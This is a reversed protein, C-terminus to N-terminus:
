FGFRVGFRFTRQSGSTGTIQGFTTGSAISFGTNPNGWRVSNTVNYSDVRFEGYKTGKITFRKFLSSDIEWYAPGSPGGHRGMNGQTASAPQSYVSPDFYLLGPGLGFQSPYVAPITSGPAPGLVSNSGNLNAYATTGPTNLASGSATISLPLGSQWIYIGSLEWGGVIKGLTSQNMWRRGPGWPLQYVSSLVYNHTRDTDSRGWSKNFDLPTGIGGNEQALDMSRGFTYSNTVLLGNRFRRDLKAQLGNYRTKGLNSRERSTGSRGFAQFEPRGNNGSGYVQSANLDIDMVINVGKTGVYAVDGTFGFPLQREFAVNWSHLTGEHLTSPIVDYTSNLLSGSIPIVGNSPIVSLAPAPFGAAMSGANQFGNVLAGNYNQKVPFNFAYRNDPFPIASAGYGARVVTQENLRWTLGTRPAINKYYNKINLSESTNGYGSVNLTGTTPDYNSLTGTGQVGQLPKYFEWRVGLDLTINSRVEWKDQVFTAINWHKTGPESIVELDRQVTSPWDLLFSAFANALGTTSAPEAPNGTGSSGFHFRGRPGGADQTQLLIDTNKRWEFGTKITHNKKMKTLSGVMNWTKESRDWPQSASFGLIPDSLGSISITSVGSTYQNINAGPIGVDASTTLGNGTTVTTNKYYNLGGRVDLLMTPSITRTWTGAASYATNTGNGAFGGNAPGGYKGFEGPDFVVPRMFSLRASVQDKGSLAYNVKGDFGDTTKDRTQAQEFNNQGLKVGPINPLPIFNLLKQAIPSIRNAPLVNGAFAVRNNGNIDGTTPDYIHQSVESFDGSRMAADPVVSLVVYGADDITRQYDGFFFLKDKKIPGGLTFGGNMFKSPAKLHTFFDTANTSQNNGFFFATGKYTNTGSRLVVNTIAGGTRGFEADYNSTTISVTEVADAAPIIVQLLGTKQNDDLGEILMNNALRSQGNVETSLSDQSNFFQSHDRHPRTAGPVVIYLSQLNRNYILPLDTVMKSEIVRGTDTRDTELVPSEGQVTISEEVAGVEMKLDVRVTTNVDVVVGDRVTKKFGTLEAVVKYTGDKLSPFRYYGSENTTTTLSINTNVETITVTVGPLALGSADVINGLLEGKIAQAFAGPSYSVLLFAAALVTFWRKTM